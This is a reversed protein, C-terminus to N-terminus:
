LRDNYIYSRHGNKGCCHCVISKQMNSTSKVFLNEVTKQKNSPKYGLGARNFVARQNKLLMDLIEFSYTFKDVILKYKELEKKVKSHEDIMNAHNTSTVQTKIELASFKKLLDQHTERLETNETKLNDVNTLIDDINQLRSTLYYNESRLSRM